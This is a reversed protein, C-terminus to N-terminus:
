CIATNKNPILAKGTAFFIAASSPASSWPFASRIECTLESGSASTKKVSAISCRDVKNLSPTAITPTQAEATKIRPTAPHKCFLSM